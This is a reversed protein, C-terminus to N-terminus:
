KVKQNLTQLDQILSRVFQNLAEGAIKKSQRDLLM